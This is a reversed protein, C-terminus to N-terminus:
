NGTPFHITAPIDPNGPRGDSVVPGQSGPAVQLGAARAATTNIEPRHDHNIGHNNDTFDTVVCHIVHGNVTVDAPDGIHIGHGAPAVVGPVANGQSGPPLQNQHHPDGTNATPTNTDTDVTLNPGTQTYDLGLPDINNIPDKNCYGYLNLGVREGIPDRSLWRGANPDYARYKTLYLGSPQHIYMGAFQFDAINTGQVLTVRGYPDYDYRAQINGSSDVLERTSGLHDRTYFYSTGVGGSYIIVGQGYFRKTIVPTAGDWEEAPMGGAVIFQKITGSSEAIRVRSSGYYSFTTTAGTAHYTISILNSLCDYTYTNNSSDTTTNGNHDYVPATATNGSVTVNHNVTSVDAYQDEVKVTVTNNGSTVPVNAIFNTGTSDITAATSNLTASYLPQNASGKWLLTGGASQAGAENTTGYATKTVTNQSGSDIEESTRNGAVDYSYAYQAVVANTSSTKVAATLQGIPDYTYNWNNLPSADLTQTWQTIRNDNDYLYDFKSLNTSGKVNKIETLLPQIAANFSSGNYDAYSMTTSVGNPMSVSALRGTNSLYGLNFQGLPNTTQTIRGLADYNNITTTNANAAGINSTKVRGLADYTFQFSPTLTYASGTGVTFATSALRGQGLTTGGVIPNYTFTTTGLCSSSTGGTTTITSIRPYAQDYVFAQTPTAAVGTGPTYAIQLISDDDNYTNTTVSGNPDTSTLMRSTAPDYTFAFSTGDPM